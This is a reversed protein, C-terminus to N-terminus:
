AISAQVLMRGLLGFFISARARCVISSFRLWFAWVTYNEKELGVLDLLVKPQGGKNISLVGKIRYLLTLEAGPKGANKTSLIEWGIEMFRLLMRLM